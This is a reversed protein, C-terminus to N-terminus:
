NEEDKVSDKTHHGFKYEHCFHVSWTIYRLLHVVDRLVQFIVLFWREPLGLHQLLPMDTRSVEQPPRNVASLTKYNSSPVSDEPNDFQTETSWLRDTYPLEPASNNSESCVHEYIRLCEMGKMNKLKDPKAASNEILLFIVHLPSDLFPWYVHVLFIFIFIFLFFLWLASKEPWGAM